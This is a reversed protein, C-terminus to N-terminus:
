KRGVFIDRLKAMPSKPIPTEGLLNQMNRVISPYIGSTVAHNFIDAAKWNKPNEQTYKYFRLVLDSAEKHAYIALALDDTLRKRSLEEKVAIRSEADSITGPIFTTTTTITKTRIIEEGKPFRAPCFIHDPQFKGFSVPRPLLPNVNRELFANLVNISSSDAVASSSYPRKRLTKDPAILIADMYKIDSTASVPIKVIGAVYIEPNRELKRLTGTLAQNEVSPFSKRSEHRNM